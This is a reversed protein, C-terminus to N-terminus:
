TKVLKSILNIGLEVSDIVYVDFGSKMIKKHEYLQRKTAVKGKMKFEIFFCRGHGLFIRDPVGRHAPSSFKYALFGANVAYTCVKKEISSESLSL